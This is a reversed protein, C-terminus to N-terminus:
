EEALHLRDLAVGLAPAFFPM